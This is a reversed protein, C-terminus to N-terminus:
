RQSRGAAEKMRKFRKADRFSLLGLAFSGVIAVPVLYTSVFARGGGTYSEWFWAAYIALVLVVLTSRFMLRNSLM